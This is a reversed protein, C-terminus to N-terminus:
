EEIFPQFMAPSAQNGFLPVRGAFNASKRLYKDPWEVCTCLFVLWVYCCVNLKIGSVVELDM